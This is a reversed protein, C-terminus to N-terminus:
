QSEGSKVALTWHPGSGPRTETDENAHWLGGRHTAFQGCEYSKGDRWVGAYRIGYGKREADRVKEELADIRVDRVRLANRVMTGLAAGLKEVNLNM